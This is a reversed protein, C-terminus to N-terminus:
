LIIQNIRANQNTYLHTKMASHLIFIVHSIHNQQRWTTLTEHFFNFYVYASWIDDKDKDLRFIMIKYFFYFMNETGEYDPSFM